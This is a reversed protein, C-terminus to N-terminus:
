RNLRKRVYDYGNRYTILYALPIAVVMLVGVVFLQSLPDPPLLIAAIIDSLILAGGLLVGFRVLSENM